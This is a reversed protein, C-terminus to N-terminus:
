KIIGLAARVSALGQRFGIDRAEELLRAINDGHYKLSDHNDKLPLHFSTVRWTNAYLGIEGNEAVVCEILHGDAKTPMNMIQM